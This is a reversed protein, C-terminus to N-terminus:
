SPPPPVDQAVPKHPDSCQLLSAPRKILVFTDTNEAQFLGCSILVDVRIM